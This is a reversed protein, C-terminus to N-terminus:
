EFDDCEDFDDSDYRMGLGYPDMIDEGESDTDMHMYAFVKASTTAVVIDEGEVAPAVEKMRVSYHQPTSDLHIYYDNETVQDIDHEQKLHSPLHPGYTKKRCHSCCTGTGWRQWGFEPHQKKYKEKALLTEEPDLHKWEITAVTGMGANHHTLHHTVATRWGMVLPGLDAHNCMVCELWPDLEDIEAASIITPDLGCAEV